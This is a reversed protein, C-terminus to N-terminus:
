EACQIYDILGPTGLRQELQLVHELDSRYPHHAQLMRQAAKSAGLWLL